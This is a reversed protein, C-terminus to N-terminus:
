SCEICLFRSLQNDNTKKFIQIAKYKLLKDYKFSFYDSVNGSFNHYQFKLQENDFTEVM